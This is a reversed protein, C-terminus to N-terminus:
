SGAGYSSERGPSNRLHAIFEGPRVGFRANPRRPTEVAGMHAQISRRGARNSPLIGAM